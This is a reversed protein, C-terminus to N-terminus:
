QLRVELGGDTTTVHAHAPEGSRWVGSVDVVREPLVLPIATSVAPDPHELVLRDEEGHIRYAEGAITAPLEIETEIEVVVAEPPVASEVDVAAGAATREAIEGGAAARYEPVAGGYLATTVLGVYLVVLAAETAKGVVPSMARDAM